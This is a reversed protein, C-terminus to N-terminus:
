QRVAAAREKEARLEARVEAVSREAEREIEEQPVDKFAERMEDIIAFRDARKRDARILHELDDISVLAAIPIGSKEIIVRTEHRYIQNALSNLQSRVDSIKLTQTAPRSDPM